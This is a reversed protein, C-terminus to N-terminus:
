KAKEKIQPRPNLLEDLIRCEFRPLRENPHLAKFKVAECLMQLKPNPVNKPRLDEGYENTEPDRYAFTFFFANFRSILWCSSSFYPFLM